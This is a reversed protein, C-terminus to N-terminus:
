LSEEHLFSFLILFPWPVDNLTTMHVQLWTVLCRLNAPDQLYPLSVRLEIFRSSNVSWALFLNDLLVDCWASLRYRGCYGSSRFVSVFIVLNNVVFYHSYIFLVHKKVTSSTHTNSMSQWYSVPRQSSLMQTEVALLFVSTDGLIPSNCVQVYWWQM